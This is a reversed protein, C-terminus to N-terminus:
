RWSGPRQAKGAASVLLGGFALSPVLVGITFYLASVGGPDGAPLPRIDQVTLHQGAARAAVAFAAATVQEMSRGAATAVLLQQGGPQLILAADIRRGGIATRAEQPTPYRILTFAAPRARHSVRAPRVARVQAHGKTM